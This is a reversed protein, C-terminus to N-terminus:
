KRTEAGTLTGLLSEIKLRDARDAIVRERSLFLRRKANSEIVGFHRADGATKRNRRRRTARLFPSDFTFAFLAATVPRMPLRLRERRRDRSREHQATILSLKSSYIAATASSAFAQFSVFVFRFRLTVRDKEQPVFPRAARICDALENRTAFM